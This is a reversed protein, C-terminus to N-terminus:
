RCMLTVSAENGPITSITTCYGSNCSGQYHSHASTALVRTCLPTRSAGLITTHHWLLWNYGCNCCFHLTLHVSLGYYQTSIVTITIMDNSVNRHVCGGGLERGTRYDCM